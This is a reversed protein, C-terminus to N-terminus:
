TDRAQDRIRRMEYNRTLRSYGGLGIDSLGKSTLWKEEYKPAAAFGRIALKKIM